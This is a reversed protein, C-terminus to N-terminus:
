YRLFTLRFRSDRPLVSAQYPKHFAFVVEVKDDPPVDVQKPYEQDRDELIMRIAETLLVPNDRLFLTVSGFGEVKRIMGKLAGSKVELLKKLTWIGEGVEFFMGDPKCFFGLGCTTLVDESIRPGFAVMEPNDKAYRVFIEREFKFSPQRIEMEGLEISNDSLKLLKQRERM